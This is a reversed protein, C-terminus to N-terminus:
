TCSTLHSTMTMEMIVPCFDQACPNKLKEFQVKILSSVAMKIIGHIKQTLSSNEEYLRNLILADQRLTVEYSHHWFLLFRCDRSMRAQSKALLRRCKQLARQHCLQLQFPSFHCAKLSATEGGGVSAVKLINSCKKCRHFM